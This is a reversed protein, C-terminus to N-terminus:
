ASKWEKWRCGDCSPDSARSAYGCKVEPNFNWPAFRLVPMRTRFSVFTDFTENWGAQVVHGKPDSRGCTYKPVSVKARPKATAAVDTPAHAAFYDRLTMGPEGSNCGNDASTPFAPGVHQAM